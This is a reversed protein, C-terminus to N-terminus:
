PASTSHVWTVGTGTLDLTKYRVTGADNYQFVVLSGKIYINGESSASPNAPNAVRPKLQVAAGGTSGDTLGFVSAAIRKIQTDVASGNPANTSSNWGLTANEAFRLYGAPASSFSAVSQILLEDYTLSGSESGSGIAMGRSGIRGAADLRFRIISGDSTVQMLDATQSGFPNIKLAPIDTAPTLNMGFGSKIQGTGKPTLNLDLNTGSGTASIIPSVGTAGGTVTIGNVMSGPVSATIPSNAFATASSRYPMVGDTANITTGSVDAVAVWGTNGTGSEKIYLTTGTSGNTRRYTSGIGATIAGEPTGAGGSDFVTASGTLHSKVAYFDKWRKAAAGVDYTNDVAPQFIGSVFEFEGIGTDGPAFTFGGTSEFQFTKTGIASSQFQLVGLANASELRMSGTSFQIAENPNAGYYFKHAGAASVNFWMTGSEVGIAFHEGLTAPYLILRSGANQDSTSPAAINGTSWKAQTANFQAGGALTSLGTANFAFLANLAGDNAIQVREITRTQLSIIGVGDIDTDAGITTSGTNSVGGTAGTVGTLGAGGGVFQVATVTGSFFGDVAYLDGLILRDGNTVPPLSTLNYGALDTLNQASPSSPIRVSVLNSLYCIFRPVDSNDMLAFTWRAGNPNIVADETSQTIFAPYTYTTPNTGTPTLPVLMYPNGGNEPGVSGSSIMVPSRYAYIWWDEGAPFMAIYGPVKPSNAMRIVGTAFTIDAM